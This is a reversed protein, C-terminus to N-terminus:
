DRRADGPRRAPQGRGDSTAPRVDSSRVRRPRPRIEEWRSIDTVFMRTRVVDKLTAGAQQLARELNQIAQVAQAYADGPAVVAGAEDTATTGSVHVHADIRVARSYGVLSEWKTGSSINKRNM